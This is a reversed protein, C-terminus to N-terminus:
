SKHFTRAVYDRIRALTEPANWIQEIAADLKPEEHAGARTPTQQKSLAFVRPPLAALANAAEVARDLLAREEEIVDHVWGREAAELPTYTAGSFIADAFFRPATACRMRGM